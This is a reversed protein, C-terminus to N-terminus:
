FRHYEQVYILLFTDSPILPCMLFLKTYNINKVTIYLLLVLVYMFVNLYRSYQKNLQKKLKQKYQLKEIIM